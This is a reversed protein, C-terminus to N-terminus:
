HSYISGCRVLTDSVIRFGGSALGWVVFLFYFLIRRFVIDLIASPIRKGQFTTRPEPIVHWQIGWFTRWIPIRSRSEIEIM